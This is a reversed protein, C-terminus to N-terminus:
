RLVREGVEPGTGSEPTFQLMRARQNKPLPFFVWGSRKDEPAIKVEELQGPLVDSNEDMISYELAVTQDKGDILVLCNGMRDDYVMSGVNKITLRVGYLAPHVEYGYSTLSPLRKTAVLTVRLSSEDGSIALTDGVTAKQESVTAAPQSAAPEEAAPETDVSTTGCAAAGLLVAAALVLGIGRAHTNM